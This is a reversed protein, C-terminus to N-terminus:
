KLTQVLASLYPEERRVLHGGNLQVMNQELETKVKFEFVTM